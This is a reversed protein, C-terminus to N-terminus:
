FNRLKGKKESGTPVSLFNGIAFAKDCECLARKCTGAQDQCISNDGATEFDYSLLERICAEGHVKRACKQCEKYARCVTDLADLPVGHGMESLPRESTARPCHCGYGILYTTFEFVANYHTMQQLLDNFTREQGAQRAHRVDVALATVIFTIALKM